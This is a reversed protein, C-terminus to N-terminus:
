RLAGALTKKDAACTHSHTDTNEHMKNATESCLFQWIGFSSDGDNISKLATSSAVTKGRSFVM